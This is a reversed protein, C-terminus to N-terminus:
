NSKNEVDQDPGLRLTVLVELLTASSRITGAVTTLAEALMANQEALTDLHKSVTHLKWAEQLIDNAPM